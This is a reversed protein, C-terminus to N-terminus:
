EINPCMQKGTLRLAITRLGNGAKSVDQVIQNGATVLALAEDMDNGATKLASASAQLAEAAGSTSISFNNGVENLKDIIQTKSLDDYAASMAILSKTAEDISQFESVNMLVNATKASEAAQDLTEGLRMFDATSNQLQLASTGIADATDFTTKQYRELSLRTEDSVKMMETLADDFQHIIELGQRFQNFIEYVSVKTALFALGEQMKGYMRDFLNSSLNGLEKEDTLISKLQTRADALQKTTTKGVTLSGFINELKQKSEPTIRKYTDLISRIRTAFDTVSNSNAIKSFNDQVNKTFEGVELEAKNIEQILQEFPYDLQLEGISFKKLESIKLTYKDLAENAKGIAEGAEPSETPSYQSLIKNYKNATSDYYGKNLKKEVENALSARNDILSKNIQVQQQQSKLM